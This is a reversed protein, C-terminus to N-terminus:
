PMNANAAPAAVGKGATPDVGPPIIPVGAKASDQAAIVVKGDNARKVDIKEVISWIQPAISLIAGIIMDFAGQTIYGKSIIIGGLLTLLHRVIGLYITTEM